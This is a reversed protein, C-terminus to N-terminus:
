SAVLELAHEAARAGLRGRPPRRRGFRRVARRVDEDDHEVVDAEGLEAAEAGVEVGRVEVREGIAAQAVRVEVGGRQARRGARAHEGAAVVVRVAHAPDDIEGGAEGAVVGADRVLVAEEGLHEDRAPVGGVGDPLPVEGGLVLRVEARRALAPRESPAELAVVAEEGALRVLERWREDLVVVPDGGGARPLVAVVQCGVEGVV